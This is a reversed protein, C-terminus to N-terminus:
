RRTHLCCSDSQCCCRVQRALQFDAGIYLVDYYGLRHLLAVVQASDPARDAASVAISRQHSTQPWYDVLHEESGAIDLIRLRVPLVATLARIQIEEAEKGMPLTHQRVIDLM